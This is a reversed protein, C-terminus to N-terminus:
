KREKDRIDESRIVLTPLRRSRPRDNGVEFVAFDPGCCNCTVHDPNRKFRNEFVRRAEDEPAEIFIESYSTKGGGGSSMDFFETWVM